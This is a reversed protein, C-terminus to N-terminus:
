LELSDIPTFVACALQDSRRLLWNSLALFECGAGGRLAALLLSSGVFILTADSTFWLPPVFWGTLYLAVPLALSLVFSLASTDSFRAPNRRIRWFHWALVLAPFGILGLAWTAPSLHGSSLQGYVILGVLLLGVVLRAATGIPGIDRHPRTAQAEADSAATKRSTERKHNAFATVLFPLQEIM